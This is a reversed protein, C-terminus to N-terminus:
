LLADEAKEIEAQLKALFQLEHFLKKARALSDEGLAAAFDAQRRGLKVTAARHLEGLADLASEDKPLGALSERLNMQEFLLAPDLDSQAVQDVEVGRLRLLYGARRLPSKLTEYAENLQSSLQVARLRQAEGAAAFRDPHVQSQLERFQENLEGADIEFAVPLGFQSFYNDAIALM